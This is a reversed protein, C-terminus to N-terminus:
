NKNNILRDMMDAVEGTFLQAMSVLKADMLVVNATGTSVQDFSISSLWQQYMEEDISGGSNLISILQADGGKVHLYKRYHEKVKSYVDQYGASADGKIIQAATANLAVDITLSETLVSKDIEIEYDISGGMMSRAVFCVGWKDLFSRIEDKSVVSKNMKQLKAWDALFGPAFLASDGKIVDNVVNQYQIDRCYVVRKTRKMAFMTEKAEIQTYDLQGTLDAKFVEAVNLGISCNASIQRSLEEETNACVFEEEVTATNDDAVYLSKGDTMQRYDMYAIDFIQYKMGECYDATVDYSYGAGKEIGPYGILLSAANQKIEFMLVGEGEALAVSVVAQRIQPLKNPAINIQLSAFGQGGVKDFSIWDASSSVTWDSNSSIPIQLTNGSQDVHYNLDAATHIWLIPKDEKECAIFLVLACFLSALRITIYLSINSHM